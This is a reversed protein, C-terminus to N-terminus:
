GPHVMFALNSASQESRLSISETSRANEPPTSLVKRSYATRTDPTGARATVAKESDIGDLSSSDAPCAAAM